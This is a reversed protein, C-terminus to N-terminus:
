DSVMSRIPLQYFQKSSPDARDCFALCCLCVIFDSMRSNLPIRVRSGLAQAPSSVEQRLGRPWQSRWLHVKMHLIRLNQISFCTACGSVLVTGWRTTCQLFGSQRARVAFPLCYRMWWTELNLRMTTGQMTLPATFWLNPCPRRSRTVPWTDQQRRWRPQWGAFCSLLTM